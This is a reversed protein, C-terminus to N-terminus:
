PRTDSVREATSRIPHKFRQLVERILGPSSRPSATSVRPAPPPRM